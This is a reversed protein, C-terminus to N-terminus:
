NQLDINEVEGECLSDLMDFTVVTKDGVGFVVYLGLGYCGKIMGRKIAGDKFKFILQTKHNSWVDLIDKDISNM